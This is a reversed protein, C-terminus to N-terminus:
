ASRVLLAVPLEALVDGVLQRGSGIDRGTLLDRWIGPPLGLEAAGWGGRRALTTPWRTALTLHDDGRLFGVLCEHGSEFPQYSGAFSEPADRRAQL